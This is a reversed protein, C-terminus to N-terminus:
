MQEVLLLSRVNLNVNFVAYCIPPGKVRGQHVNQHVLIIRFKTYMSKPSLSSHHLFVQNLFVTLEQIEEVNIYIKIVYGHIKKLNLHSTVM